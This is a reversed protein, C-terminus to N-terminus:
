INGGGITGPKMILIILTLFGIVTAWIPLNNMINQMLPFLNATTQLETSGSELANYSNSIVATLTVILVLMLLGFIFFIPHSNIFFASILVFLALGIFGYFFLRDFSLFGSRSNSLIPQTNNTAISGTTNFSPSTGLAIQIKDYVFFTLIIFVSIILLLVFILPLDFLNGKKNHKRKFCIEM